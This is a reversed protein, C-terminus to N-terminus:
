RCRWLFRTRNTRGRQPTPTVNFREEELILLDRAADGMRSLWARRDPEPCEYYNGRCREWRSALCGRVVGALIGVQTTPGKPRTQVRCARLTDTVLPRTLIPTRYGNSSLTGALHVRMM